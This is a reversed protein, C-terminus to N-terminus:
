VRVARERRDTDVNAPGLSHRGQDLSVPPAERQLPWRAKPLPRPICFHLFELARGATRATTTSASEPRRGALPARTRLAPLAPMPALAREQSCGPAQLRDPTKPKAARNPACTTANATGASCASSRSPSPVQQASGTPFAQTSSPSQDAPDAFPTHSPWRTADLLRRILLLTVGQCRRGLETRLRERRGRQRGRRRTPWGERPRCGGAATALLGRTPSSEVEPLSRPSRARLSM